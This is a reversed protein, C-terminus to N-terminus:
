LLEQLSQVPKIKGARYERLAATVRRDLKRAANGRLRVVPFSVAQDARDKLTENEGHPIVVFDDTISTAGKKLITTAM